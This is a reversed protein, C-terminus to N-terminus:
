TTIYKLNLYILMPYIGGNWGDFYLYGVSLPAVPSMSTFKKIWCELLFMRKDFSDGEIKSKGDKPNDSLYKDPNYRIFMTPVGLAQFINVMRIQECECPRSFHQNEDVELIIAFTLFMFLFDPREKGYKGGDIVKDHSSYVIGRSDLYEKVKTEKRKTHEEFNAKDCFYCKSNVNLLCPMGCSVCLKNHLDKLDKTTHFDCHTAYNKYPTPKDPATGHTAIDRCGSISCQKTPYKIMRETRHKACFGISIGPYNFSALSGCDPQQCGASVMDDKGHISCYIGITTGPINYSPATKCGHELCQKRVVNVMGDDSHDSCRIGTHKGPYNFCPQIMCGEVICKRGTVNVMSPVKHEGCFMGHKEGTMNFIPEKECGMESCQRRGVPVMLQLKHDSCYLGATEGRFNFRPQTTCGEYACHKVGICIMAPSSHLKCFLGLPKGSFKYHPQINCGDHACKKAKVCIMETKKHTVCTICIREGPYNFTPIKVCGQESCRKASVNLM